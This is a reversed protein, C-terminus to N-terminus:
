SGDVVLLRFANDALIVSSNRWVAVIGRQGTPFRNSSGFLHPVLEVSMGVRDVILFQGFDGLLLIEDATTLGTDGTISDMASAEHAPYGILEPPMGAQLRVWLNSGGQTDFQRVVNYVSKNALFRANPRFRPALDNDLAYIDEVDFANVTATSVQSGAALTAVVGGPNNGTGDGTVFSTAEEQEKADALLRTMEARLRMWDQDLEMSFPVFGMVRTAEVTPQALTPGDDSAEAAEASRSVTIGESTIGQWEKGTIQEVRSIQRLPNVSGDSTLIVTPDLQFPVAFGGESDTGLSMARQEESTLGQTSGSILAKGFAREYVPNGTVLVRRALTGADDDVGQLLREVQGQAADRKAVGPFKAAEVARLANDRYLGGLEDVSRARQRIEALDYINEPATNRKHEFSPRRNPASRELNGDHEAMEELDAKRAEIDALAQQHDQRETKLKDWEERAEDSLASGDHESDIEALRGQIEQLRARREDVTLTFTTDDVTNVKRAPTSTPPPVDTGKEEPEDTGAGDGGAGGTGPRGISSKASRVAAEYASPNRERLAEYFEDTLSRAVATADPNAPFTVPGFEHLRVKTITREPIGDPNDDSTGPEDDWEEGTVRFRFSSGYVGARLGDVILDPVGRFLSVEYFAGTDDERLTQIDGLIQDGLVDHGHNFTVRVQDGDEAMTQAFAGPATRELFRGEFISNVEYWTNFVSFHGTLTPPGDGGDARVELRAPVARVLDIDPSDM